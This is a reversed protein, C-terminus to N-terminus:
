LELDDRSGVIPRVDAYANAAVQEPAPCGSLRAAIETARDFSECEVVWYGALVEQTEAYPGDTVFATGDKAGLRRTHVPAALGRTEVLEGSEELEKSFTEMFAGMAAVDDPTWAPGGTNAGALADYDQQSGYTLIMYKM